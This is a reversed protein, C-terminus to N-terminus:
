DSIVESAKVSIKHALDAVSITEPIHVEQAQFEAPPTFTSPARRKQRRPPRRAARALRRTRGRRVARRPRSRGSRPPTTPGARRSSRSKISKKDGPKAVGPAAAGPTGAKKHITGKIAEKAPEAPKAEEPKKAVLVRKPASM